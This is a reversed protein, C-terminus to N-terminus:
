AAGHLLSNVGIVEALDTPHRPNYGYEGDPKKDAQPKVPVVELVQGMFLWWFSEPSYVSPNLMVKQQPLQASRTLWCWKVVIGEVRWGWSGRGRLRLGAVLSGGDADSVDVAEFQRPAAVGRELGVFRKSCLTPFPLAGGLLSGGDAKVGGFAVVELAFALKWSDGGFWLTTAMLSGAEANAVQCHSLTVLNPLSPSLPIESIPSVLSRSILSNQFQPIQPFSVWIELKYGMASIVSPRLGLPRRYIGRPIVM